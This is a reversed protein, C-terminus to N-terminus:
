VDLKVIAMANYAGNKLAYQQGNVEQYFEIGLGLVFLKDPDPTVQCTLKTAQTTQVNWLLLNGSKSDMEFVNHDFDITAGVATLRFHTTGAPAAVAKEPVFPAIDLELTGSQRDITATFPAYLTASLKANLNFDFGLLRSIDGESVTRKGRPHTSDTRLIEMLLRVLRSILKRDTTLLASRFASRLLKGAKCARGFEENNERTRKFAPDSAIRAASIAKKERAIIGDATQSFTINGVTGELPLIGKLKGM